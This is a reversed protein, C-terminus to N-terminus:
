ASNGKVIVGTAYPGGTEHPRAGSNLSDGCVSCDRSSGRSCAVLDYNAPVNFGYRWAANRAAPDSLYGHSEVLSLLFALSVFGALSHRSM